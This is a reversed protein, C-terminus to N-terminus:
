NMLLRCLMGGEETVHVSDYLTGLDFAVRGTARACLCYSYNVQCCGRTISVTTVCHIM